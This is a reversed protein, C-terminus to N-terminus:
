KVWKVADAIVARNTEGSWCSLKVSNAGANLTYAGLSNWQGGNIQQNKKVTTSGTSHYVVYPANTSRNSGQSWWAYVTHAGSTPLTVSWTALDSIAQTTRFRYNSGFKDPASTGTTWNASASFGASSNDLVVESGTVSVTTSLTDGFWGVSEQLMKWAFAYAGPTSPATATFTFNATQGPNIPSAPLAVRTFGWRTTDQPSQSGLKHATTGVNTWPKVGVNKMQVTASFSQGGAVSAPASILVGKAANNMWTYKQAVAQDLDSKIQNEYPSGDINWGDCGSCWRYMNVCRFVPRGTQYATQNYRNIEAYIEQMWGPEYHAGPNEPHNGKWYYYGNCETAYIPLNWMTNPIGYDVWDKYVYFSWYLNQGGANIKATNHIDGYFYGRSNIHLAVADVPGKAKCSTLMQNHYTVWNLPVGDHPRAIGNVSFSGAGIPGAFPASAAPVIKDNPRISRIANAVKGYCDAYQQPSVYNFRTGDFPWESPLNLENGIVWISCGTSNQVFNKVRTAFNDYQAPVPITGDPFYGYNIRCIVTHGQNALSSFNAGGFDNPNAGVAVTATVWGGGVVNKIHNLYETPDPDHDHVGYIHPTEAAAAVQLSLLLGVLLSRGYIFQTKM